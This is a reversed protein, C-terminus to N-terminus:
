LRLEFVLQHKCQINNEWIPQPYAHLFYNLNLGVLEFGEQQYLAIQGIGSNGTKILLQQLGLQRSQATVHRLLARGLGRGQYSPEVAISVIEGHEGRPELLCIGQAQGNVHVVYVLSRPLYQEILLPNEDALLLLHYPLVDGPQAQGISYEM